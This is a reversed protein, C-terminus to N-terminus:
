AHMFKVLTWLIFILGFGRSRAWKSSVYVHTHVLRINLNRQRVLFDISRAYLATANAEIRRFALCVVFSFPISNTVCAKKRNREAKKQVERWGRKTMRQHQQQQKKGSQVRTHKRMKM